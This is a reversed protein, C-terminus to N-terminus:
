KMSYWSNSPEFHMHIAGCPWSENDNVLPLLFSRWNYNASECVKCKFIYFVYFLCWLFLLILILLSNFFRYENKHSAEYRPELKSEGHRATTTLCSKTLIKTLCSPEVMFLACDPFDKQCGELVTYRISIHPSETDKWPTYTYSFQKLPKMLLAISTPTMLTSLWRMVQLHSRTRM